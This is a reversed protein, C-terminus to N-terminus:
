FFRYDQQSCGTSIKPRPLKEFKGAREHGASATFSSPHAINHHEKLMEVALAESLEGTNWRNGDGGEKCDRHMCSLSIKGTM